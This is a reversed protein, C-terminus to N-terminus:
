VTTASWRPTSATRWTASTPWTATVEARAADVRRRLNDDVVLEAMEGLELSLAVLRQQAGDHLDRELRRRELREAQLIRMRSGRLEELRARLEVQLQANHVAMGTAAAVSSVLEPEDDLAADHLLVAVPIGDRVTEDASVDVRGSLLFRREDASSRGEAAYAVAGPVLLLLLVAVLVLIAARTTHIGSGISAITRM